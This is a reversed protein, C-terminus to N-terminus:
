RAAHRSARARLFQAAFMVALVALSYLVTGWGSISNTVILGLFVAMLLVWLARLAIVTRPM